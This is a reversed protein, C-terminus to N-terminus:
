RQQNRVQPRRRDPRARAERVGAERVGAERTGAARRVGRRSHQAIQRRIQAIRMRLHRGARGKMITVVLSGLLAGAFIGAASSLFDSLSRTRTSLFGQMWELGAALCLVAVLWGLVAARGSWLVAIVAMTLGYAAFHELQPSAGTRIQLDGPLLSLIALVTVALVPLLLRMM